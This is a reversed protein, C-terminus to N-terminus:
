LKSRLHTLYGQSLVGTVKVSKYASDDPAYGFGVYAPFTVSLPLNGRRKQQYNIECTVRRGNLTLKAHNPVSRKLDNPITVAPNQDNKQHIIVESDAGDLMDVYLTTGINARARRGNRHFVGKYELESISAFQPLLWATTKECILSHRSADIRGGKWDASQRVDRFDYAITIEGTRSNWRQVEGKLLQRLQEISLEGSNTRPRSSPLASVDSPTIQPTKGSNIADVENMVAVADEIRRQRTLDRQLNQLARVYQDKLEHLRTERSDGVKADRQIFQAQLASLKAPSTVKALDKIRPHGSFQKREKEVAQFARLDGAQQYDNELDRLAAIYAQPLQLQEAKIQQHVRQIQQSYISQMQELSAAHTASLPTFLLLLLLAPTFLIRKM